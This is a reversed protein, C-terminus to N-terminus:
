LTHIYSILISSIIAISYLSRCSAIYKHQCHFLCFTKHSLASIISNNLNACSSYHFFTMADYCFLPIQNGTARLNIVDLDRVSLQNSKKGDGNLRLHTLACITLAALTHIFVLSRSHFLMISVTFTQTM